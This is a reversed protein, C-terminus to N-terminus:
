APGAGGPGIRGDDLTVVRDVLADLHEREHSVVVVAGGRGVVRTVLHGILAGAAADLGAHAEDLLLLAPDTILIRALDARRVMGHSCRDVRRTAARSLGVAALADDALGVPRGHLRAAFHLNEQLSLQGYLASQHAVMCIERRLRAPVARGLEAGLISGTGATPRRLTALVQLLTTKGSGNAGMLGVVEGHQVTLHLGRLVPAREIEVAVDTLAVAAGSTARSVSPGVAGAVGRDTSAPIGAREPTLHM